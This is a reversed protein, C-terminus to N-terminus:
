HRAHVNAGRLDLDGAEVFEKAVLGLLVIHVIERRIIERALTCSHLRM